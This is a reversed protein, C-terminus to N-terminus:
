ATKRRRRVLLGALGLGLLAFSAPEPTPVDATPAFSVGKFNSDSPATALLAFAEGAGSTALLPDTVAYLYTQDLDSITFNTAFLEVEEVGNEDVLEGTLGYLGTTGDLDAANTATNAILPLGAALTYELTWTGSGDAKSNVWKQLGGDGQKNPASTQKPTGDDAVYLVSASAFFYNEPSLNITQGAANIGNGNTATIAYQGTGGANGFGTLMTPGNNSNYLSTAPPTGLTGIFSRASNSGGKTDVSIDLTNNNIQVDRTDQSLTKGSTDLGTIAIFSTTSGLTTYFVGGTADSGTGQGSVYINTGDLTYASRPNNTNFINLLGTTSNVNGNNDILAVTRAVPTYGQGTLSGSQALRADGTPSFSNVVGAKSNFLNDNVGYGMITLYQGNGSLQLTGESSSGYEASVPLNSGSAAQPLVLSNVYAGATTFQFLTLPSAQNDGYGGVSSNQTGNGTGNPVTTCTGNYIGCGSVSVVLNGTDFITGAFAPAAALLGVTIAIKRIIREAARTCQQNM